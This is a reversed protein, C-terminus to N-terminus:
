DEPEGAVKTLAEILPQSVGHEAIVVEDAIKQFELQETYSCIIILPLAPKLAKLERAVSARIRSPMSNCLVVADFHQKKALDLLLESDKTTVVHYGATEVVANRTRLIASNHGASLIKKGHAAIASRSPTSM